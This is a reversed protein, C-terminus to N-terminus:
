LPSAHLVNSEEQASTLFLHLEVKVERLHTVETFIVEGKLKGIQSWNVYWYLYGAKSYV